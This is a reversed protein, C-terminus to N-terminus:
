YDTYLNQRSHWKNLMWCNGHLDIPPATITMNIAGVATRIHDGTWEPDPDLMYQYIAYLNRGSNGCVIPMVSKEQCQTIETDPKKEQSFM